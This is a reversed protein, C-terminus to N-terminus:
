NLKIILNPDPCNALYRKADAVSCMGPYDGEDAQMDQIIQFHLHPPWQGNEHLDGVAAFAQDANITQGKKLDTLSERSLHGYLTHFTEGELEHQLIISPGYDGPKDNDAFSHVISDMPAFVKTGPPVSLDLGLHINRELQMGRQEAYRSIGIDYGTLCKKTYAMLADIDQYDIDLNALDFTYAKGQLLETPLIDHFQHQQLLTELSM